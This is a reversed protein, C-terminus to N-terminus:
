LFVMSGKSSLLIYRIAKKPILMRISSPDMAMNMVLVTATLISGKSLLFSNWTIMSMGSPVVKSRVSM